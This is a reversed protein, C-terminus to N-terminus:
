ENSREKKEPKVVIIMKDKAEAKMEWIFKDGEELGFQNRVSMPVTTRLSKSKINAKTLTTKQGLNM